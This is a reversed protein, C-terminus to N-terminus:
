VGFLHQAEAIAAVLADIDRHTNYVGFSARATAPVGLHEMLPRACHLGARIAVGRRDFITALDQPHLNEVMFSIVGIQCGGAPVLRVGRQRSLVALAYDTLDQEHAEVAELGLSMMFRLALDLGVAGAIDPTGAEFRPPADQHGTEEFGVMGAMDGGRWPPMAALLERKGYLVGIGTPGYCKHGSFVFFDCDLSRVDVPLRPASQCGDLLVRAGAAHAMRVMEAVPTVHGTANAVHTMALLRPRAELLHAFAAMDLGGEETVPVVALRVGLRDRLMRWPVINARHELGTLLIQDGPRLWAGWGHALLDIAETAGRVFVIEETSAANLFRRVTERAQEYRETARISLRYGGPHMNAYDARYFEAIGEIVEEPKQASAATDLYVLDPHRTFVPFETKLAMPDFGAMVPLARLATM